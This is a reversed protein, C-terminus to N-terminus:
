RPFNLHHLFPWMDLISKGAYRRPLVVSIMPEVPDTEILHCEIKM